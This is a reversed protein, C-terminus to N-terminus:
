REESPEATNAGPANSKPLSPWQKSHLWSCATPSRQRDKLSAGSNRSITAALTGPARRVDNETGRNGGCSLNNGTMAAASAARSSSSEPANSSNASPM